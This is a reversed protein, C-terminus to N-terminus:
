WREDLDQMECKFLPKGIKQNVLNHQECLWVCLDERSRTRVPSQELNTRFDDACYTCPYFTALASMFDTMKRRESPNPNEPYWAAMSHLLTWSASGLEGSTPQCKKEEPPKGGTAQKKQARGLAASLASVTDECAPRDCDDLNKMLSGFPLSPPPMETPTHPAERGHDKPAM